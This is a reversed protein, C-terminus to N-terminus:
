IPHIESVSLRFSSWDEVWRFHLSSRAVVLRMGSWLHMTSRPKLAKQIASMPQAGEKLPIAICVPFSSCGQWHHSFFISRIM